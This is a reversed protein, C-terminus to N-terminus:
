CAHQTDQIRYEEYLINSQLNPMIIWMKHKLVMSMKKNDNFNQKNHKIIMSFNTTPVTSISIKM